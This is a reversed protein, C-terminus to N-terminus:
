YPPQALQDQAEQLETDDAETTRDDLPGLWTVIKPGFVTDFIREVINSYYPKAAKLWIKKADKNLMSMTPVDTKTLCHPKGPVIIATPKGGHHVPISRMKAWHEAVLQSESGGTDTRVTVPGLMYRLDNLIEHLRTEPVGLPGAQVYITTPQAQQPEEPRGPNNFVM